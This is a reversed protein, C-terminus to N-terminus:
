DRRLLLSAGFAGGGAAAIAVRPQRTRVQRDGAQGRLQVVAEHLFGLGHLRGGSLQGGQTNLPLEGELAIRRGGELFPGAEGEECLGLAELWLLCLISFGDYLEAIDVDKPKLDTGAWMQQAADVLATRVNPRGPDFDFRERLTGGLSEIHIPMNRLDGAAAGASVIVAVSADTPADCDLLCLPDSIMRAKLYDDLTIPTRFLANPNLSANRRSNVAMAGVQERRTGYLSFHRQALLAAWHVPSPADFPLRWQMEGDVRVRGDAGVHSFPAAVTSVAGSGEKITRYCLVHRALGSKVAAVANIISAFQAPGEEGGCCWRLKIRLAQQVESLHVPSFSLFTPVKGPWTSIGDIDAPKLGADDLAQRTADLTLQLGSRDLKRGIQSQGVGSVVVGTSM